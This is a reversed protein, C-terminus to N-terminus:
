EAEGSCGNAALAGKDVVLLRGDLALVALVGNVDARVLGESLGEYGAQGRYTEYAEVQTVSLKTGAGVQGGVDGQV